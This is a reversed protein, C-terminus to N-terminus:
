YPWALGRGVFPSNINQGCHLKVVVVVVVVLVVALRWASKTFRYKRLSRRPSGQGCFSIVSHPSPPIGM